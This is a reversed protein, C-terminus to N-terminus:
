YFCTLWGNNSHQGPFSVPLDDLHERSSFELESRLVEHLAPYRGFFEFIGVRQILSAYDRDLNTRRANFTRTVLAAYLMMAVNRCIWSRALPTLRM